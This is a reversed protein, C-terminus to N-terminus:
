DTTSLKRNKKEKPQHVIEMPIIHLIRSLNSGIVATSELTSLFRCLTVAFHAIFLYFVSACLLVHYFRCLLLM